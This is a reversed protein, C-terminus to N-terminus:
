KQRDSLDFFMYNKEAAVSHGELDYIGHWAENAFNENATSSSSAHQQREYINLLIPFEKLELFTANNSIGSKLKSKNKADVLRSLKPQISGIVAEFANEEDVRVKSKTIGYKSALFAEIVKTQTLSRNETYFCYIDRVTVINERFTEM